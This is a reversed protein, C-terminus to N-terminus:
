RDVYECVGDLMPFVVHYPRKITPTPAPCPYFDTEVTIWKGALYNFEQVRRPRPPTRRSFLRGFM